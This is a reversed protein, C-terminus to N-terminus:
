TGDKNREENHAKMLVSDSKMLEFVNSTVTNVQAQLNNIVAKHNMLRSECEKKEEQLRQEYEIKTKDHRKECDNLAKKVDVYFLKVVWALGAALSSIAGYMATIHINDLESV